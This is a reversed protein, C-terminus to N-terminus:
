LEIRELTERILATLTGVRKVHTRIEDALPVFGAEEPTDVSKEPSLDKLINSIRARLDGIANELTEITEDMEAMQGTVQAKETSPTGLAEM